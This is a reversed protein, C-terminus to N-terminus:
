EPDAALPPETSRLVSIGRPANARLQRCLPLRESGLARHKNIGHRRQQLCCTQGATEPAAKVSDSVYPQLFVEHQAASFCLLRLEAFALPM